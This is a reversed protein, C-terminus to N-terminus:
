MHLEQMAASQLFQIVPLEFTICAFIECSVMAKSRHLQGYMCYCLMSIQSPRFVLQRCLSKNDYFGINDGLVGM